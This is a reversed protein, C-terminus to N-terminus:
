SEDEDYVPEGLVSEPPDGADDPEIEPETAKIEDPTM